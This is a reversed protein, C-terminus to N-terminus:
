FVKKSRIGYSPKLVSKIPIKPGTGAFYKM